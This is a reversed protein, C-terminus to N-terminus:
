ISTSSTRGKSQSISHQINEWPCLDPANLFIITDREILELMLKRREGGPKVKVWADSAREPADYETSTHIHHRYRAHCLTHHLTEKRDFINGRGSLLVSLKYSIFLLHPPNFNCFMM